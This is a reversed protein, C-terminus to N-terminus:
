CRVQPGAEGLPARTGSPRCADLARVSLILEAIEDWRGERFAVRLDFLSEAVEYLWVAVDSRCKLVQARDLAAELAAVSIAGANVRGVVGTLGGSAVAERLQRVLTVNEGEYQLM